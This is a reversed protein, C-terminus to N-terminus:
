DIGFFDDQCKQCLGSIKFEKLSIENRFEEKNIEKSCFPCRGQDIREVEVPFLERIVPYKEKINKIKEKTEKKM